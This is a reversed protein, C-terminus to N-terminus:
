RFKKYVIKKLFSPSVRLAFLLFIHISNSFTFTYPLERLAYFRSRVDNMAKDFGRRNHFDENVRFYLLSRNINSFVYGLKILDVWLYYDQTNKLESKYRVGNAFVSTRLMVTPHNFPCKKILKSEITSHESDMKKYFVENGDSDIEIVDSGVVDVNPNDKLFNVQTMFRSADCVDDADMRAIFSYNGNDVVKDIIQNLRFALGKNDSDFSISFIDDHKEKYSVLLDYVEPEICGDVQIYIHYNFYTQSLISDLCLKVYKVSDNKYISMAVAVNSM